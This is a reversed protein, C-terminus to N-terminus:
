LRFLCNCWRAKVAEVKDSPLNNNINLIFDRRTSQSLTAAALLLPGFDVNAETFDVKLSPTFTDNCHACQYTFKIEVKEAQSADEINEDHVMVPMLNKYHQWEGCTCQVQGARHDHLLHRSWHKSFYLSFFLCGFPKNEFLAEVQENTLNKLCAGKCWTPPQQFNLLVPCSALVHTYVQLEADGFTERTSFHQSWSTLKKLEPRNVSLYTRMM